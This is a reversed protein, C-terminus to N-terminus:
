LYLAVPPARGEHLNNLPDVIRKAILTFSTSESRVLSYSPLNTGSTFKFHSACISCENNDQTFQHEIGDVPLDDHSSHNHAVSLFMGAVILLSIFFSINTKLKIRCSIQKNLWYLRLRAPYEIFSQLSM